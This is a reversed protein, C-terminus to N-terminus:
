GRKERGYLKHQVIYQEVKPPVWGALTLGAACRSRVETASIDLDLGKIVVTHQASGPHIADLNQVNFGEVDPREIVVLSCSALIKKPEHWSSISRASDEGVIFLIETDDPLQQRLLRLTDVTYTPGERGTEVASVSFRTEDQTGLLTMALRQRRTARPCVARLWPKGTPIFLIRDLELQHLAANAIKLHGDHIPDFTGGLVGLRTAHRAQGTTGALGDGRCSRPSPRRAGTM